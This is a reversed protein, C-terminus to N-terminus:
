ANGLNSRDRTILVQGSKLMRLPTCVPLKASIRSYDQAILKFGEVTERRTPMVQWPMIHYDIKRVLRRQYAPDAAPSLSSDM